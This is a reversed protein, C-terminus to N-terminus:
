TSNDRCIDISGVLRTGITQTRTDYNTNTDCNPDDNPYKTSYQSNTNSHAGDQNWM